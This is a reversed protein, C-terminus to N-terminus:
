KKGVKVTPRIILMGSEHGPVGGKILIVNKEADVGVVTLKKVTTQKGGLRGAMKRGKYVRSPTTGAGISGPHRHFKSGHSMPGRGANWRKMLGAFGRGISTGTVDVIQGETFIDVKVESGVEYASADDLRFEKLWKAPKVGAKKFHGKEGGALRSEKAEGYGLQVAVYGENDNNKKQVVTCPGAHVVTVPVARGEADFITTM